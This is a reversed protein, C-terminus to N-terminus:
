RAKRRIRRPRPMPPHSGSTKVTRAAKDCGPQAMAAQQASVSDWAEPSLAKPAKLIRLAFLRSAGRTSRRLLHALCLQRWKGPIRSAAERFSTVTRKCGLGEACPLGDAAKDREPRPRLLSCITGRAAVSIVERKGNQGQQDRMFLDRTRFGTEAEQGAASHFLRYSPKAAALNRWVSANLM